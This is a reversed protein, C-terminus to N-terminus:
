SADRLQDAEQRAAQRREFEPRLPVVNALRRLRASWVFGLSQRIESSDFPLALAHFAGAEAL